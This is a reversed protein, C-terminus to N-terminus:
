TNYGCESWFYVTFAVKWEIGSTPSTMRWLCQRQALEESFSDPSKPHRATHRYQRMALILAALDYAKLLDRSVLPLQCM